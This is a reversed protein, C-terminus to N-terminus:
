PGTMYLLIADKVDNETVGAGGDKFDRILIEIEKQTVVESFQAAIAMNGTITITKPNESGSVGSGSWGSFWYGSDPQATLTVQQGTTYTAQDPDKTVSGNEATITLTYQNPTFVASVATDGTITITKPNDTGGIDGGWESFSYGQNANATLQVQEGYSYSSKDPNRAVSGNPSSVTLTYQNETFYATVTKDADMTITCPNGSCAPDGAWYDFSYGTDPDATLQVTEGQLYVAKDPDRIVTGNAASTTLVFQYLVVITTSNDDEYGFMDEPPDSQLRGVWSCGPFSYVTGGTANDPITVDYQLTIQDDDYLPKNENFDPPTEFVCRYSFAGPYISGASGTELLIDPVPIGNKLVASNDIALGVGVYDTLYFGRIPDSSFMDITVLLQVTVTEGPAAEEPITREITLDASGSSFAYAFGKHLFFIVILCAYIYKTKKSM